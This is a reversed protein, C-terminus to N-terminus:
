IYDAYRASGQVNYAGAATYGSAPSAQTTMYYDVLSASSAVSSGYDKFVQQVKSMDANKFTNEDIAMKGNLDVSIGFQKLAASYLTTKEQIYSVNSLVGSNTSSKAASLMDNYNGAFSKAAAFIKDIDYTYKGDKDKIKNFLEDSALLEGDKKLAAAASGATNTKDDSVDTTESASASAGAAAGAFQLRSMVTSGYSMIDEGSFLEQVKSIDTEKLKGENLQLTGNSNITIGLEKLKDANEATSRMMAGVNATKGSLTSKKAASVVDNYQNVYDKVASAVKDKASSGNETDKYTNENRLVSVSNKLISIDNTLSENAKQTEESVKPNRREELIKDLINSSSSGTQSSVSSSSASYGSGYYSKMLRAYSGNKISAYDAFFSQNGSGFSSSQFLSSNISGM